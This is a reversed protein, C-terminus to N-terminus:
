LVYLFDLGLFYGKSLAYEGLENYFDKAEDKNENELSGIGKNALGDTCLIVQSGAKRSALLISYFLAPGLATAGGEEM